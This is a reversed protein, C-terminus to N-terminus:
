RAEEQAQDVAPDRRFSITRVPEADFNASPGGLRAIVAIQWPAGPVHPYFIFEVIKRASGLGRRYEGFIEQLDHLTPRANPVPELTILYPVGSEPYRSLSASKLDPSAPRLRISVPIGPDTDIPGLLKVVDGVALKPGGLLQFVQRLLVALKMTIAM